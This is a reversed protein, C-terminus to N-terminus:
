IWGDGALNIKMDCIFIISELKIELRIFVFNRKDLWTQPQMGQLTSDAVAKWSIISRDKSFSGIKMVKAIEFKRVLM